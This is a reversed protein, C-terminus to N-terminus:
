QYMMKEELSALDQKLIFVENQHLETLDNLQTELHLNRQKEDQVAAQFNTMDTTYMEALSKLNIDLQTQAEKVELIEEMVTLFSLRRGGSKERLGLGMELEEMGTQSLTSGRRLTQLSDLFDSLNFSNTGLSPNESDLSHKSTDTHPSVPSLPSQNLGAEQSPIIPTPPKSSLPQDRLLHTEM